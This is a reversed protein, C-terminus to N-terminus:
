RGNWVWHCRGCYFDDASVTVGGDAPGSLSVNSVDFSAFSDFYKGFKDNWSQGEGILSGLGLTDNLIAAVAAPQLNGAVGGAYSGSAHVSSLGTVVTDQQTPVDLELSGDYLLSADELLYPCWPQGRKIHWNVVASGGGVIGGAYDRASDVSISGSMQAGLIASPKVGAVSLLANGSADGTLLSSVVDSLQGLSRRPRSQDWSSEGAWRREEPSAALMAQATM